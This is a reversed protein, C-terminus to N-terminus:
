VPSPDVLGSGMIAQPQVPLSGTLPYGDTEKHSPSAKRLIDHRKEMCGPWGSTEGPHGDIRGGGLLSNSTKRSCRSTMPNDDDQSECRGYSDSLWGWRRAYCFLSCRGPCQYCPIQTM